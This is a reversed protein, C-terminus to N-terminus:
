DEVVIDAAAAISAADAVFQLTDPRSYYDVIHWVTTAVTDVFYDAVVLPEDYSM